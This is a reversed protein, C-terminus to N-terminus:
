LFNLRALFEERYSAGMPVLRGNIIISNDELGDIKATNVIYSRHVRTFASPPLKKEIGKMTYHVIHKKNETYFVVYDALAEVMVIKSFELRIFKADSRVYIDKQQENQKQLNEINKKAKETAALFRSYDVPKVLFDTVSKEFAEVAHEKVSTILIIEYDLELSKILEMGTMGPMEIDLYIIDTDGEKLLNSAELANSCEHQLTLYKTKEIYHMIISRSMEDDDVIM